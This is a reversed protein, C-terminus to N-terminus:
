VLTACPCNRLVASGNPQRITTAMDAIPKGTTPNIDQMTPGASERWDGEIFHKTASM